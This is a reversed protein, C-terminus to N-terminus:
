TPRYMYGRDLPFKADETFKVFGVHGDMYLINSGGPIHNFASGIGGPTLVRFQSSDWMVPMESQAMSSAGPNNIDTIMFREIGEKLRHLTGLDDVQIDNDVLNPNQENSSAQWTTLLAGLGPGFRGDDVGTEDIMLEHPTAYGSYEYSYSSPNHGTGYEDAQSALSRYEGYRGVFGLRCIDLPGEPDGGLNLWGSEYPTVGDADSPCFMIKIHTAYEPYTQSVQMFPTWGVFDPYLNITCSAANAAAIDGSNYANDQDLENTVLHLIMPWKEGKSENAYMKFIVGWQKLNNQCSARRAAERARALAPLLIAALIGIIAIVVLLEILTFGSKKM